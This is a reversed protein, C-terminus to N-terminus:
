DSKGEADRAFPYLAPENHNYAYSKPFICMRIKNFPATSLTRLTEQQLPESQHVWAYCTTGFPFYPTGDAYAFHQMNRVRVPGHVGAVAAVCSFAGTKGALESTNSNTTYTWAGLMDPMFRIKYVGKGDYFGDVPVSRNGLSFSASLEVDTFPNGTSPGHLEVEFVEWQPVEGQAQQTKAPTAAHAFQALAALSTASGLKLMKRRDM